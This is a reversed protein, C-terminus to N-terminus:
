NPPPPRADSCCVAMNCVASATRRQASGLIKHPGIVVDGPSRGSSACLRSGNPRRRPMAVLGNPRLAWRAWRRSLRKTSRGILLDRHRAAPHHIPLVCSYTWECDHVIAGGGTARRVWACGASPGHRARDSANQFYGLSVTPEEWAYWRWAARGSQSAWELLMEDVAMNWAGCAPPDSLLLCATAASSMTPVESDNLATVGCWWGKGAPVQEARNKSLVGGGQRSDRAVGVAASSWRGCFVGSEPQRFHTSQNGFASRMKQVLRLHRIEM